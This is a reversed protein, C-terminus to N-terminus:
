HGPVLVTQAGIFDAVRDAASETQGWILTGVVMGLSVLLATLVVWDITVAGDESRLRLFVHHLKQM